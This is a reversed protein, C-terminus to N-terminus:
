SSVIRAARVEVPIFMKDSDDNIEREREREGREMLQRLEMMREANRKKHTDAQGISNRM